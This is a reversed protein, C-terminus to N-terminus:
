FTGDIVTLLEDAVSSATHGTRFAYSSNRIGNDNFPTGATSDIFDKLAVVGDDAVNELGQIYMRGLRKVKVNANLKKTLDDRDIVTDKAIQNLDALILKADVINAIRLFVISEMTDLRQERVKQTWNRYKMAELSWYRLDNVVELLFSEKGILFFHAAASKEDADLRDWNMQNEVDEPSAIQMKTYVLTKLKSRFCLKDTWGKISIDTSNVGLKILELISTVETYGTPDSVNDEQVVIAPIAENDKKYIKM